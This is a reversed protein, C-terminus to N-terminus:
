GNAIALATFSNNQHITNYQEGFTSLGVVKNQQMVESIRTRLGNRDMYVMRAACDFGLILAPPGIQARIEAFASNLKEVMNGAKGVAVVLGREIACAFQISNDRNLKLIGRPFWQGGIHVMAPHASFDFGAAPKRAMGCLQAYTPAAPRGNIQIVLREDPRASTIVAKNKTAMYHNHSMTRWPVDTQVLILVACNRHFHANHLVAAPSSEASSRGVWDTAASGGVLPIGRLEAGLAATLKEEGGVTGDVLLIAFCHSANFSDVKRALDARVSQVASTVAILALERVNDIRAVAAHFKQKPFGIATVAGFLYGGPTIEGASSCGVINGVRWHTAIYDGIDSLNRRASCFIFSLENTDANVASLVEDVAHRYNLDVSAATRIANM